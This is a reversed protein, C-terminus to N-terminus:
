FTWQSCLQYIPSLRTFVLFRLSLPNASISTQHTV